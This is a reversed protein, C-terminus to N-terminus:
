GGYRARYANVILDVTQDLSFTGTNVVLDYYADSSPDWRYYRRSLEVRVKDERVQRRAAEAESIGYLTAARAVRDAVPGTLKVHLSGEHEAFIVTSSRGFIVGGESLADLVERTNQAVTESDARAEMAWTIDADAEAMPTFSRFFRSLPGEEKDPRAEAQEIQDSSFKQGAYPVGLREAVKPAVYDAGAGYEEFFTIITKSPVQVEAM